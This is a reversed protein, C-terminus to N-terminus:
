ACVLYLEICFTSNLVFLGGEASNQADGRISNEQATPGQAGIEGDITPGFIGLLNPCKTTKL